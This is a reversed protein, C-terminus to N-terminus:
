TESKQIVDADQLEYYHRVQNRGRKKALYLAQDAHRIVAEKNLNFESIAIGFSATVRITTREDIYFLENEIEKRCREAVEMAARLNKNQLLMVFEEGGFRGVIDTDRINQRLVNAVRKLVNDGIDHGYNDNISKFHDLDLLILAFKREQLQIENLELGIKRRNYIGTLPDMQSMLNIQKERNRWQTLLIEFLVFTAFFIPVYFYLQSYVWFENFVMVSYNLQDSFVPAYTMYGLASSVIAILMYVIVPLFLLYVIKREFLVLGVTLISIFGAVTAPSSIGVSYGGYIFSVSFVLIIFYPLYQRVWEKHRWIVCPIILLFQLVCCLLMRSLHFYYYDPNLWHHLAPHHFSFLYWAIWTIHALGGLVMVLICKNLNSWNMLVSQNMFSHLTYPRFIRNFLRLM